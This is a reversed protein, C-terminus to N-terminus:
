AVFRPYPCTMRLLHQRSLAKSAASPLSRCMKKGFLASFCSSFEEERDKTSTNGDQRSMIAVHNSFLCFWFGDERDRCPGVAEGGARDELKEERVPQRCKSIDIEQQDSGGKTKFVEKM